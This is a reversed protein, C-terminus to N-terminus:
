RLWEHITIICDVADGKPNVCQGRIVDKNNGTFSDSKFTWGDVRSLQGEGKLKGNEVNGRYVIGKKLWFLECNPGHLERNMNFTGMMKVENNVILMGRTLQAHLFEGEAVFNPGIMKGRVFKGEKFEGHVYVTKSWQEGMGHPKGNKFNGRYRMGNINWDGMGERTKFGVLEGEYTENYRTYTDRRPVMAGSYFQRLALWCLFGALAGGLHGAHDFLRFRKSFLGFLDLALIVTVASAASFSFFPLFM